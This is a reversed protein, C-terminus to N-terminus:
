RRGQWSAVEAGVGGEQTWGAEGQMWAWGPQGPAALGPEGARLGAGARQRFGSAGSALLRRKDLFCCCQISFGEAFGLVRSSRLCGRRGKQEGARTSKNKIEFLCQFLFFFVVKQAFVCVSLHPSPRPVESCEAQQRQKRCGPPGRAPLGEAVPPSPTDPPRIFTIQQGM